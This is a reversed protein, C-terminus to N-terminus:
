AKTAQVEQTADADITESSVGNKRNYRLSTWVGLIIFGAGMLGTFVEPINFKMGLFMITALVGIAYHAAHGLHPLEDLHGGRVLFVTMSRVFLAGIGLGAMIIVVNTSLAFAGIVGDFSFSADLVELYIFGAAGSKVAGKLVQKDEDSEMRAAIMDVILYIALGGLMALTTSLRHDAPAMMPVVAILAIGITVSFSKLEGLKRLARELKGLWTHEQEELIFNLFVMALFMGGFGAIEWHSEHLIHGYHEGDAFAMVFADWPWLHGFVAVIFVPIILRMGFVAILIGWLLFRDQWKKTMNKLVLANVVANDFSLGLELAALLLTIGFLEWNQAFAAVAALVIFSALISWRFIKLAGRVGNVNDEMVSGQQQHPYTPQQASGTDDKELCFCSNM